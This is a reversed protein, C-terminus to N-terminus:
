DLDGEPDAQAQKLREDRRIANQSIAQLLPGVFTSAFRVRSVVRARPPENEDPRPMLQCLDLIFDHDGSSVLAFNAYVGLELEPPIEIQLEQVDDAM